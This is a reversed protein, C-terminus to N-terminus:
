RRVRGQEDFALSVNEPDDRFACSFYVPKGQTDTFSAGGALCGLLASRYVDVIGYEVNGSEYFHVSTFFASSNGVRIRSSETSTGEKIQGNKYFEIEGEFEIDQNGVRLTQKKELTGAKLEGSQYFSLPASLKVRSGGLLFEPRSPTLVGSRIELINEQEDLVILSRAAIGIRVGNPTTIQLPKVTEGAHVHVQQNSEVQLYGRQTQQNVCLANQQFTVSFLCTDYHGQVPNSRLFGTQTILDIYYEPTIERMKESSIIFNYYRTNDSTTHGFGIVADTYIIEHLVLGAKTQPSAIAWLQSNILYRKQSLRPNMVQVAFQTKMCGADPNIIENADAIPKIQAESVFAAESMFAQARKSLREAAVPDTKALRKLVFDVQEMFDAQPSGTELALATSFKGEYYDLLEVTKGGNAAPCVVGHGGHTEQGAYACVSAGMTITTLMVGISKWNRVSM